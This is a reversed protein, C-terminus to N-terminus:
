RYGHKSAETMAAGLNLSIGSHLVGNKDRYDWQIRTVKEGKLKTTFAQYSFQDKELTTSIGNKTLSM